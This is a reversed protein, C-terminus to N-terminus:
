AMSALNQGVCWSRSLWSKPWAVRCSTSDQGSLCSAKNRHSLEALRALNGPINAVYNALHCRNETRSGLCNKKQFVNWVRRTTAAEQRLENLMAELV